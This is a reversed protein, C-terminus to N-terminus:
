VVNGLLRAIKRNPNMLVDFIVPSIPRERVAHAKGVTRAMTGGFGLNRNGSTYREEGWAARPIFNGRANREM